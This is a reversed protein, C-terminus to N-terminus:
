CICAVFKPPLVVPVRWNAVLAIYAQALNCHGSCFESAPRVGTILELLRLLATDCVLCLLQPCGCADCFLVLLLSLALLPFCTVM